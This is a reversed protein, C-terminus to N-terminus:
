IWEQHKGREVRSRPASVIERRNVGIAPELFLNALGPEGAVIALYRIARKPPLRQRLYTLPILPLKYAIGRAVSM